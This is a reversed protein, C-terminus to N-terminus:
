SGTNASAQPLKSIKVFVACTSTGNGNSQGQTNGSTAATGANVFAIMRNGPVTKAVVRSSGAANDIINPDDDESGRALDTSYDFDGNADGVYFFCYKTGNTAAMHFFTATVMYSASDDPVFASMPFRHSAKNLAFGSTGTGPVLVFSTSWEYSAVRDASAAAALAYGAAEDASDDADDASGAAALASGAAAAASESAASVSATVQSIAAAAAVANPYNAEISALLEAANINASNNEVGGGYPRKALAVINENLKMVADRTQPDPIQHFPVMGHPLGSKNFTGNQAM